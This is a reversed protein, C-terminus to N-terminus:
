NKPTTLKMQTVHWTSSFAGVLVANKSPGVFLAALSVRSWDAKWAFFDKGDLRVILAEKRVMFVVTRAAGNAFVKKGAIGLDAEPAAKGDILQIGSWAGKFADFHFTFPRGGGTLGVFFDDAGDKRAIEMTLDYEEPLPHPVQLKAHVNDASTLALAKGALKCTGSIADKKPDISALLDVTDLKTKKDFTFTAGTLLPLDPPRAVPLIKEIDAKKLLVRAGKETEMEYADGKDKVITGEVQKGDKLVFTDGAASVASIAALAATLMTRKM